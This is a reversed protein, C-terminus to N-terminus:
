RLRFVFWPAAFVVAMGISLWRGRTLDFEEFIREWSARFVWRGFGVDFAIMLGLWLAGVGLAEWETRVGVWPLTFWTLGLILLSGTVVGIQRARRDGVRRNLLRVRLYGQVVEALALVLWVLLARLLMPM